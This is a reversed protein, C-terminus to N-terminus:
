SIWLEQLDWNSDTYVNREAKKNSIEVINKNVQPFSCEFFDFDFLMNMFAEKWSSIVENQEKTFVFEELKAPTIFLNYAKM